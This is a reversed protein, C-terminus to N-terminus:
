RYAAKMGEAIGQSVSARQKRRAEVAALARNLNTQLSLFLGYMETERTEFSRIPRRNLIEVVTFTPDRVDRRDDVEGELPPLFIQGSHLLYGGCSSLYAGTWNWSPHAGVVPQAPVHDLLPTLATVLTTIGELMRDYHNRESFEEEWALYAVAEGFQRALEKIHDLSM